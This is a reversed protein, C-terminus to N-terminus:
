LLLSRIGDFLSQHEGLLNTDLLVVAMVPYRTKIREITLQYSHREEGEPMKGILYVRIGKEKFLWQIRRAIADDKVMDPMSAAEAPPKVTKFLDERLNKETSERFGGEPQLNVSYFGEAFDDPDSIEKWAVERNDIGAFVIEAFAKIGAPITRIDGLAGYEWQELDMKQSAVYLWPILLRSTNKIANIAVSDSDADMQQYIERLLAYGSDFPLALIRKTLRMARKHADKEESSNDAQLPPLKRELLEMLSGSSQIAEAVKKELKRFRMERDTRRLSEKDPPSVPSSVPPLGGEERQKEGPSHAAAIAVGKNVAVPASQVTAATESEPMDQQALERIRESIKVFIKQKEVLKIETLCKELTGFGQFETLKITAQKGTKPHVFPIGANKVTSPSLFVPLVTMRGGECAALLPPLEKERIFKSALFAESIFLIATRSQALAEEISEQWRLGQKIKEDTWVTILGEQELTEQYPMFSRLARKDAHCYSVFVTYKAM